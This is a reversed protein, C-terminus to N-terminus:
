IMPPPLYRARVFEGGEVEIVWISGKRCDFPSELVMGRELMWELLAPIVDGHSSVVANTGALDKVLRRTSKGTAGEALEAREEIELDMVEAIPEVTERCRLYPSSMVREVGYPLLTAVLAAAQKRGKGSLPRLMDDGEWAERSGARAHRVLLLSGQQFAAAIPPSTILSRDRVYTLLDAAEDLPAWRVEDVEDSPVFRGPGALRMTFWRVRKSGLPSMYSTEGLPAVIRAPYGTEELVERVAAAEPAEGPEDKGKPLTWDDYRPRHVVLVEIGSGTPRLVAGGSALIPQSM